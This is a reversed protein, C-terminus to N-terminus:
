GPEPRTHVRPQITLPHLWFSISDRHWTMLHKEMQDLYEPGEIEGMRIVRRAADELRQTVRQHVRQIKGIISEESERLAMGGSTKIIEEINLQFPPWPTRVDFHNFLTALRVSQKLAVIALKAAADINDLMVARDVVTLGDAKEFLPPDKSLILDLAKAVEGRMVREEHYDRLEMGPVYLYDYNMLLTLVPHEGNKEPLPTDAEIGAKFADSLNAPCAHLIGRGWALMGASTPEHDSYVLKRQSM